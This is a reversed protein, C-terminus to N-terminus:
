AVDPLGFVRVANADTSAELESADLDRLEALFRATLRVNAPTNRQGRKPVPTLYPSDTEVLLREAPISSAAEQLNRASKYTLNGAFSVMWGLDLGARLLGEDGNFCHLVGQHHGAETIRRAAERSAEDQHQKDRVHLILPKGLEQALRAQWRFSQLQLDPPVSDWYYDFGTEGIAVVKPHRALEEIAARVSPDAADRADNPHIGVAAYVNAHREALALTCRSREVTTGVSVIARLQPDAAADPDDCYDLHCHSDIM